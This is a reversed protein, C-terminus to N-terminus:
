CVMLGQRWLVTMFLMCLLLDGRNFIQYKTIGCARIMKNVGSFPNAHLQKYYEAKEPRLRIVSAFIQPKNLKYLKKANKSFIDPDDGFYERVLQLHEEFSAYQEVVPFNSVYHLKSHEFTGSIFDLLNKVFVKDKTPFGSVKCYVNPLSALKTMVKKYNDDITEVNGCHNIVVKAQPVRSAARLILKM